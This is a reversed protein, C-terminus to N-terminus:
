ATLTKTQSEYLCPPTMGLSTALWELKWSTYFDRPFSSPRKEGRTTLSPLGTLPATCRMRRRDILAQWRDWKSFEGRLRNFKDTVWWFRRNQLSAVCQVITRFILREETQSSKGPRESFNTVPEPWTLTPNLEWSYCRFIIRLSLSWELVSLLVACDTINLSLVYGFMNWRDESWKGKLSFARNNQYQSDLILRISGFLVARM